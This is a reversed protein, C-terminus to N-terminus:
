KLAMQLVGVLFAWFTLLEMLLTNTLIGADYLSHGLEISVTRVYLSHGM